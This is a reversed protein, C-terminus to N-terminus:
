VKHEGCLCYQLVSYLQRLDEKNLTVQSNFLNNVRTIVTMIVDHNQADIEFETQLGDNDTKTIVTQKM